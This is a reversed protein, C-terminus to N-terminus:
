RLSRLLSAAILAVVLGLSVAWGALRILAVTSERFGTGPYSQSEEDLKRRAPLILWAVCNAFILGICLAGFFPGFVMLFSPAFSRLSIGEQWFDRFLHQPYLWLHFAWVIRFLGYWCGLWGLIAPPILVLNWASKRRAARLRAASYFGFIRQLTQKGM